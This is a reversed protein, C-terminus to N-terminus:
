GGSPGNVGEVIQGKAWGIATTARALAAHRDLGPEVEEGCRRAVAYPNLLRLDDLESPVTRDNEALLKMLHLLNHTRPFDVDLEALVGKLAKEAAQQCHFGIIADSAEAYASLLTAASLDDQAFRLLELALDHQKM